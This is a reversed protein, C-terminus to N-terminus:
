HGMPWEGLPVQTWLSGHVQQPAPLGEPGPSLTASEGQGRGAGHCLCPARTRVMGDTRPPSGQEQMPGWLAVTLVWTERLLSM